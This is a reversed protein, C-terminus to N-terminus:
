DDALANGTRGTTGGTATDGVPVAPTFMPQRM